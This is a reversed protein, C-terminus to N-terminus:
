NGGLPTGASARGRSITMKPVVHVRIMLDLRTFRQSSLSLRLNQVGGAVAANSSAQLETLRTRAATKDQTQKLEEM